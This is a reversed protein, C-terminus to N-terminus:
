PPFYAPKEIGSILTCGAIHLLSVAAWIPGKKLQPDEFAPGMHEGDLAFSLTGANM